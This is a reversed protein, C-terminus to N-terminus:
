FFVENHFGSEQQIYKNTLLLCLDLKGYLFNGEFPNESSQVCM